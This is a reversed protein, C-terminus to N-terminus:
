GRKRHPLLSHILSQLDPPLECDISITEGSRPHVLMTIILSQDDFPKEEEDLFARERDIVKRLM